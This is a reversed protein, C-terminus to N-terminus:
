GAYGALFAKLNAAFFQPKVVRSLAQLWNDKAIDMHRALRGLLVINAARELGAELALAHANLAECKTGEAQLQELIGAPYEAAGMIVPMPNIQQTNTILLGGKKLSKAYRAAELLEFAVVYDAEGECIVPSFVREGFRVSTVVSGGRQAMGHVESVKVDCGEYLLLEGLLKGALLSGQGGVGALVIGTTM